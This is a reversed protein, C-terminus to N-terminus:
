EGSPSSIAMPSRTAVVHQSDVQDRSRSMFIDCLKEVTEIKMKKELGLALSLFTAKSGHIEGWRDLAASCQSRYDGPYNRQITLIDVRTLGIVPALHEWETLYGAIEHREQFPCPTDIQRRAVGYRSLVEELTTSSM